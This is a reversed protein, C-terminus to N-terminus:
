PTRIILAGREVTLSLRPGGGALSGTVRRVDDEIVATLADPARLDGREVSAEIDVGDRPLTLDVDDGEIALTVAAAREMTMSVTLRTAEIDVPNRVNRLKITGGQGRVTTTGAGGLVEITCQRQTLSVDGAAEMVEIDTGDAHLQVSAPRVLRVIGRHTEIDVHTDRGFEARGDRHSGTIPGSVEEVVLDGRYDDFEAGEIGTLSATGRGGLQLRLTKPMRVRLTLDPRSGGSLRTTDIVARGERATITFDLGAAQEDLDADDLGHLTVDLTAHVDAGDEGVVDLRGRFDEIEIVDIGDPLVLTASRSVMRTASRDGMHSRASRFIDRLSFGRAGEVSAPVTLQYLVTGVVAFVLVLLLERKGM